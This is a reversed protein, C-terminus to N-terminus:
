QTLLNYMDLFNEFREQDRWIMPSGSQKIDELINNAIEKDGYVLFVYHIFDYVRALNDSKAFLEVRDHGDFKSEFTDFIYQALSLSQSSFFTGTLVEAGYNAFDAMSAYPHNVYHISKKFSNITIEDNDFLSSASAAHLAVKQPMWIDSPNLVDFQKKLAEDDFGNNVAFQFLDDSIKFLPDISNEPAIPFDIMASNVIFHIEWYRASVKPFKKCLHVAKGAEFQDNKIKFIEDEALPYDNQDFLFDQFLKYSKIALDIKHFSEEYCNDKKFIGFVQEEGHVNFPSILFATLVYPNLASFKFIKNM